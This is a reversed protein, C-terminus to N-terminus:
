RRARARVPRGPRLLLAAILFAIGGVILRWSGAPQTTEHRESTDTPPLTVMPDSTAGLVNGVPSHSAKATEAAQGHDTPDASPNSTPDVVSDSPPASPDDTPDVSASGPDASQTPDATPDVLSGTPDSSPNSSPDVNESPDSSPDATPDVVANSPDSSPDSSPETTAQETPEVTPDTTPRVTGDTSPDTTAQEKANADYCFSIHSIGNGQGAQPGLNQDSTVAPLYGYLNHKLNGAKVFVADVGQSASWDFSGPTGSSSDSYNSITVTLTGDSHTGNGLAGAELKFQTWTVGSPAFDACTPNGSNVPIPEVSSAAVGGATPGFSAAALLIGSAIWGATRVTVPATARRRRLAIRTKVKTGSYSLNLVPGIAM